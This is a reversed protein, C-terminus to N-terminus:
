GFKFVQLTISHFTPSKVVANQPKAKIATLFEHIIDFEILIIVLRANLRKTFYFPPYCFLFQKNLHQSKILM